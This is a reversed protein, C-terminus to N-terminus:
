CMQQSLTFALKTFIYAQVTKPKHKQQTYVTTAEAYVAEIDSNPEPAVAAAFVFGLLDTSTNKLDM